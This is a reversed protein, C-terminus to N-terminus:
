KLVLPNIEGMCLEIRQRIQSWKVVNQKQKKLPDKCDYCNLNGNKKQKLVV